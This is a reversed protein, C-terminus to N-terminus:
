EWVANKFIFIMLSKVFHVKSAINKVMLVQSSSRWKLEKCLYLTQTKSAFSTSLHIPVGGVTFGIREQHMTTLPSSLTFRLHRNVQGHGRAIPLSQFFSVEAVFMQFRTNNELSM